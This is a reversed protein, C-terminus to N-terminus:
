HKQDSKRKRDKGNGNGNSRSYNAIDQKGELKPCRKRGHRTSDCYSCRNDYRCDSGFKCHGNQFAWCHDYNSRGAANESKFKGGGNQYKRFNNFNANSKTLPEVMCLNLMQNYTLAWSRKPNFEMLQRFTYDYSAVNDWVFANATHIIDVYQLIEGARGPNAKCYITTYIRFTQDWKRIGNVKKERDVPALFTDGGKQWWGLRTASDGNSM